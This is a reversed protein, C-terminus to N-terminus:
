FKDWLFEKSLNRYRYVFTEHNFGSFDTGSHIPVLCTLRLAIILKHLTKQEQYTVM